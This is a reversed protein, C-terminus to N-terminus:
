HVQELLEPSAERTGKCKPYKTCGLFYGRRSQRLKMAAGCEPCTDSIEVDPVTKKKPPPLLTKLQEKLEAPVPKTSRCRPYASCGLFPGRPGRKVVM